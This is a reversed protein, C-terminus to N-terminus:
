PRSLSLFENDEHVKRRKRRRRQQLRRNNRPREARGSSCCDRGRHHSRRVHGALLPRGRGASARQARNRHARRRDGGRLSHRLRGYPRHRRHGNRRHGAARLRRRARQHRIRAMWGHSHRRSRGLPQQHRLRLGQGARGSHRDVAGGARQRRDRLRIPGLKHEGHRADPRRRDGGYRDRRLPHRVPQRRRARRVAERGPRVPLDDQQQVRGAGPQAGGVAHDAHRRVAVAQVKRDCLRQHPRLPARRGHGRGAGIWLPYGAQLTLGTVIGVLGMVSGVSLDIGGTIIVLM